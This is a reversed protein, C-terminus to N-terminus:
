RSRASRGDGVEFVCTYEGAVTLKHTTSLNGNSELSRVNVERFPEMKTSRLFTAVLHRKPPPPPTGILIAKNVITEAAALYREMLIPSVTLVDGINDFGHGIDDSPFDEAANFDIGMLDRVTRNYEVRNLRRVTVRGPDPPAHLDHDEFLANIAAVFKDSDAQEPRPKESPPMQGTSVMEVVSEWVARRKVVSAVNNDAFLSLDAKVDQEGHCEFCYKRVFTLGADAFRKSLPSVEQASALAPEHASSFRATIVTESLVVVLIVPTMVLRLLLTM